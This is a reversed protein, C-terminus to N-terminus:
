KVEPICFIDAIYSSLQCITTEDQELGLNLYMGHLIEHCLTHYMHQPNSRLIRITCDNYDIEGTIDGALKDVIHINYVIPGIKVWDPIKHTM